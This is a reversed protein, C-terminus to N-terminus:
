LLDHFQLVLRADTTNVTKLDYDIDGFNKFFNINLISLGFDEKKVAKITIIRGSWVYMVQYEENNYKITNM